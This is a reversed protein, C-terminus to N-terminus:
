QPNPGTVITVKLDPTFTLSLTRAPVDRTTPGSFKAMRAGAAKKEAKAIVFDKNKVAFERASGWTAQQGGFVESEGRYYFSTLDPHRPETKCTDPKVTIWGESTWVDGAQYAIAFNITHGFKNCFMVPSPILATISEIEANSMERVQFSKMTFVVPESNKSSPFMIFGVPSTGAEPDRRFKSIKKGNVFFAGDSGHLRVSFENVGSSDLLSPDLTKSTIIATDKGKEFREVFFLGKAPFAVAWYSVGNGGFWFRLGFFDTADDRSNSTVVACVEVDAYKDRTGAAVDNGPEIAATLGDPGIEPTDSDGALVWAQDFDKFGNDFILKGEGCAAADGAAAILGLIFSSLLMVTLRM